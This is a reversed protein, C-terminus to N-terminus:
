LVAKLYELDEQTTVKVSREEEIVLRVSKGAWAYVMAADLLPIASRGSNELARYAEMLEKLRFTQPSTLVYTAAREQFDGMVAAPGRVTAVTEASARVTMAGGFERAAAINELLTKQSVLPRVGDHILVIDEEAPDPIVALGKLLSEQRSGGGEVVCLLKKYGYEAALARMKGCYDGLCPVIIADVQACAEFRDITHCIVLKGGIPMFQKPVGTRGMREGIGGALIITYVM